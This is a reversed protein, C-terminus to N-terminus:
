RQKTATARKSEEPSRTSLFSALGVTASFGEEGSEALRKNSKAQEEVIADLFKNALKDIRRLAKRDLILPTWSLYSDPDDLIKAEASDRADALINRLIDMSIGAVISAPLDKFAERPIMIPRTGRYFHEVAGRRPETKVLEILKLKKLADIHYSVQSLGENLEKSLLNPSSVRENLIALVRTRLRHSLGKMLSHDVVDRSGIKAVAKGHQRTSPAKATTTARKKRAM